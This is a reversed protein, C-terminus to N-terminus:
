IPIQEMATDLFGSSISNWHIYCNKLHGLGCVNQSNNNQFVILGVPGSVRRTLLHLTVTAQEKARLKTKNESTKTKECCMCSQVLNTKIIICILPEAVFAYLHM